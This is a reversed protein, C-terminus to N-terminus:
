RGCGPAAFVLANRSGTAISLVLLAACSIAAVKATALRPRFVRGRIEAGSDEPRGQTVGVRTPGSQPGSYSTKIM